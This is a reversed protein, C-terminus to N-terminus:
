FVYSDSTVGEEAFRVCGYENVSKYVKSAWVRVNVGERVCACMLLNVVWPWAGM